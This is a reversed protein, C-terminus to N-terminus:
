FPHRVPLGPIRIFARDNTWIERAGAEVAILAIQLDYIRRGNVALDNALRLIREGAGPRPGVIQAGARVLAELFATAEAPTSGTAPHTVVSWFEAACPFPIVWGGEIGSAEEVIERALRHEPVERRHAYILLNSDLAIM